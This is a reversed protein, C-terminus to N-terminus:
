LPFHSKLCESAFAIVPNCGELLFEGSFLLVQDVQDSEYSLLCLLEPLYVPCERAYSQSDCLLLACDGWLYALSLLETKGNRNLVFSHAMKCRHRAMVYNNETESPGEVLCFADKKVWWIQM